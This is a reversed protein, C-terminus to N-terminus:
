HAIHVTSRTSNEKTPLLLCGMKLNQFTLRASLSLILYTKRVFFLENGGSKLSALSTSRVIM